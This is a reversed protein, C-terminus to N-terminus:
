QVLHEYDKNNESCIYELLETDAQLHADEVITWPKTYAKPDDFTIEIDLRGFNRRHFRETLRLADTHPRGANDLWTTENIGVTDVVFNDGDWKGVSYGFWAPQPDKPLARGDAFIQRFTTFGESLILLMGPANLIKFPYPLNTLKPMGPICRGAPDLKAGTGDHRKKFLAEAWPQYPVEGPKLDAAIDQLYKGNVQWIGSLDPKGDATRPPPANLDPRGDPLRPIGPTTIKFWQASAPAAAALSLCLALSTWPNCM